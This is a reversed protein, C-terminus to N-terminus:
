VENGQLPSGHGEIHYSHHNSICYLSIFKLEEIQKSTFYWPNWKRTICNLVTSELEFTFSNTNTNVYLSFIVPNYDCLPTKSGNLPLKERVEIM